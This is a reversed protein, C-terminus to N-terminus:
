EKKPKTAANAPAKMEPPKASKTATQGQAQVTPAQPRTPPEMKTIRICIMLLIIPLVFIAIVIGVKVNHSLSELGYKDMLRVYAEIVREIMAWVKEYWTKRRPMPRQSASKYGEKMFPEFDEIKREGHYEYITGDKFLLLTPLGHVDFQSSLEGEDERRPM